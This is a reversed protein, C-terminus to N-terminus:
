QFLELSNTVEFLKAIEKLHKAYTIKYKSYGLWGNKEPFRKRFREPFAKPPDLFCTYPLRGSNFGTTVGSCTAVGSTWLWDLVM